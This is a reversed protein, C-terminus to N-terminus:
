SEKSDEDEFEYPQSTEIEQSRDVKSKGARRMLKDRIPFITLFESIEPEDLDEPTLKRQKQMALGLSFLSTPLEAEAAAYVKYPIMNQLEGWNCEEAMGRCIDAIAEDTLTKIKSEKAKQNLVRGKIQLPAAFKEVVKWCADIHERAKDRFTDIKTISISKNEDANTFHHYDDFAKEQRRIVTKESEFLVEIKESPRRPHLPRSVKKGKVTEIKERHVGKLAESIPILYDCDLNRKSCYSNVLHRFTNYLEPYAARNDERRIRNLYTTLLEFKKEGEYVSPPLFILNGSKKGLRSKLHCFRASIRGKQADKTGSFSLLGGQLSILESRFSNLFIAIEKPETFSISNTTYDVKSETKAILDLICNVIVSDAFREIDSPLFVITEKERNVIFSFPVAEDAKLTKNIESGLVSDVRATQTQIKSRLEQPVRPAFKIPPVVIEDILGDDKKEEGDHSLTNKDQSLADGGSRPGAPEVPVAVGPLTAM